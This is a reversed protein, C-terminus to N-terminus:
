KKGGQQPRIVIKIQELKFIVKFFNDKACFLILMLFRPKKRRTLLYRTKFTKSFKRYPGRTFNSNYKKKRMSLEEINTFPYGNINLCSKKKIFLSKTKLKLFPTLM